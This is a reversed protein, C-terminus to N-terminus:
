DSPSVITFNSDAYRSVYCDYANTNPTLDGEITITLSEGRIIRGNSELDCFNNIKKSRYPNARYPDFRLNSASVMYNRSNTYVIWFNDGKEFDFLYPINQNHDLDRIILLWSPKGAYAHLRTYIQITQGEAAAFNTSGMLIMLSSVFTIYRAIRKAM